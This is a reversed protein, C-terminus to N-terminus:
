VSMNKANEILDQFYKVRGELYKVSEDQMKKFADLAEAKNFFLYSQDHVKKKTTSWKTKLKENYYFDGYYVYSRTYRQDKYVMVERIGKCTELYPEYNPGAVDLKYMLLGTNGNQKLANDLDNIRATTSKHPNFGM